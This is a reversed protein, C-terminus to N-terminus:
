YTSTLKVLSLSSKYPSVGLRRLTDDLLAVIHVHLDISVDTREVLTGAPRTTEFVALERHVRLQRETPSHAGCPFTSTKFAVSAFDLISLIFLTASM